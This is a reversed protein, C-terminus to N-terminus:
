QCVTPSSEKPIPDHNSPNYKGILRFGPPPNKQMCLWTVVTKPDQTNVVAAHIWGRYSSKGLEVIFEIVGEQIRFEKTHAGTYTAMKGLGAQEGDKPFEGWRQYYEILQEQIPKALLMPESFKSRIVYKHYSPIAVAALIGIIAVVIMLEILTFGQEKM